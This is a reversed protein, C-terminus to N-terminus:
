NCKCCNDPLEISWACSQGGMPKFVGEGQDIRQGIATAVRLSVRFLDFETQEVAYRPNRTRRVGSSGTTLKNLDFGTHWPRDFRLADKQRDNCDNWWFNLARSQRNLLGTLSRVRCHYVLMLYVRTLDILVM